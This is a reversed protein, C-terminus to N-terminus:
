SLLNKGEFDYQYATLEYNDYADATLELADYEGATLAGDTHFYTVIDTVVNRVDEYVGTIPNIMMTYSLVQEDTYDKSVTIANAAYDKALDDYYVDQNDIYVRLQQLQVQLTYIRNEVYSKYEETIDSKLEDMDHYIAINNADISSKIMEKIQDETLLEIQDFQEKLDKIEVEIEKTRKILWDINLEHFDSYPFQNIFAM